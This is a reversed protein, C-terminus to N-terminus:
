RWLQNYITGATWFYYHNRWISPTKNGVLVERQVAPESHVALKDSEVCVSPMKRRGTMIVEHHNLLAHMFSEMNGDDSVVAKALQIFGGSRESHSRNEFYLFRAAANRLKKEFDGLGDALAGISSGGASHMYEFCEYVCVLFPECKEINNLKSTIESHIPNCGKGFNEQLKSHFACPTLLQEAEPDNLIEGCGKAFKIHMDEGLLTKRLLEDLEPLLFLSKLCQSVDKKKLLEVPIYKAKSGIWQKFLKPLKELKPSSFIQAVSEPVDWNDKLLKCRRCTGRYYQYLGNCVIRPDDGGVSFEEAVELAKIGFCCDYEESHHLYYEFFGELVKFVSRFQSPNDDPLDLKDKLWYIFLVVKIGNIDTVPAALYPVLNKGFASWIPLAGLLDRGRSRRLMEDDISSFYPMRHEIGVM